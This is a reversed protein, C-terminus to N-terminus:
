NSTVSRCITPKPADKGPGGDWGSAGHTQREEGEDEGREGDGLLRGVGSVRAGFGHDRHAVAHAQQGHDDRGTISRSRQGNEHFARGVARAVGRGADPTVGLADAEVAVDQHQRVDPPPEPGLSREVHVAGRLRPVRPGVLAGVRVVRDVPEHLVHGAVVPLHADEAHRIGAPERGDGREAGVGGQLRDARLRRHAVGPHAVVEEVLASEPQAVAELVGPHHLRGRVQADRRGGRAVVGELPVEGERGEARQALRDARVLPGGPAAEGLMGRVIGHPTSM